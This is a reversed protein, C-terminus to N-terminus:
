RAATSRSRCVQWALMSILPPQPRASTDDLKCAHADTHNCFAGSLHAPQSPAHLQQRSQGPGPQSARSCPPACSHLPANILIVLVITACQAPMHLLHLTPGLLKRCSTSWVWGRSGQNPVNTVFQRAKRHESAHTAMTQVGHQPQQRDQMTSVDQPKGAKRCRPQPISSLHM